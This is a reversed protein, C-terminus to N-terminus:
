SGCIAPFLERQETEDSTPISFHRANMRHSWKGLDRSAWKPASEYAAELLAITKLNDRGSNAPEIQKETASLLEELGAFASEPKNEAKM